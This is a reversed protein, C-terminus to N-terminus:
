VPSSVGGRERCNAIKSSNRPDRDSGPHTTWRAATIHKANSFHDFRSIAASTPRAPFM